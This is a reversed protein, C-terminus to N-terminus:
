SLVALAVALAFCLLAIVGATVGIWVAKSFLREAKCQITM